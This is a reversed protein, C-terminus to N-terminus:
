LYTKSNIYFPLYDKNMGFECNVSQNSYVQAFMSKVAAESDEEFRSPAGPRPLFFTYFRVGETLIGNAWLNNLIKGEKSVVNMSKTVEIGSAKFAGKSYIRAFGRTILDDILPNREISLNSPIRARIVYDVEVEYDPWISSKVVWKNNQNICKARPGFDIKLIGVEILAILQAIREKPPGVSLRKLLPLFENYFWKYSDGSLGGFDVVKAIRERLDRLVDCSAKIPSEVNGICSEEYDKKIHNLIFDSFVSQSSLVSESIPQKISTWSFKNTSKNQIGLLENQLQVSNYVAEMEKILLPLVQSEFDIEHQSCLQEAYEQTFYKVKPNYSFKKYNNPKAKLPLGSRSFAYIQPESGSPIYKLGDQEHEGAPVFKGGRGITLEAILDFATLGLGEIGVKSSAQIHNLKEVIPFPNEILSEPITEKLLNEKPMNHGTTLFLFNFNQYAIGNAILNWTGDENRNASTVYEKVVQVEINSPIKQMLKQFAEQLYVGFYARPHYKDGGIEINLEPNREAYETIWDEFDPGKFRDVLDTESSISFQTIQSTITNMLHKDSQQMWHCGPGFESKDFLFLQFHVEPIQNAHAIIREILSLGRPGIGVISIKNM